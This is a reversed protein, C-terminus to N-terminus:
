RRAEHITESMSQGPDQWFWLMLIPPMLATAVLVALFPASRVGLALGIAMIVLVWAAGLAAKYYHLQM